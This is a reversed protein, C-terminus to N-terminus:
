ACMEVVPWQSLIGDAIHRGWFDFGEDNPHIKDIFVVKSGDAFGYRHCLPPEPVNAQSKVGNPYLPMDGKRDCYKKM